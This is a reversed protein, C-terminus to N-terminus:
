VFFMETIVYKSGEIKNQELWILCANFADDTETDDIPDYPIQCVINWVPKANAPKTQGILIIGSAMKEIEIVCYKWEM